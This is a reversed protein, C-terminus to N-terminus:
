HQVVVRRVDREGATHEIVVQYVGNPLDSVDITWGPATRKVERGIGDMIVFREVDSVDVGKLNVTVNAPVPFLTLEPEEVEAVGTNLGCPNEGLLAIVGPDDCLYRFAKAPGANYQWVVNDAEDVEYMYEGSIAVFTNGNPMRDSASQGSADALCEHRWEYNSPGWVTGPTWPYNYGDRVPNIADITTSGGTGGSNNVFQLWGANPRDALLWHVDHVAAAIRQTGSIGYNAPKGWRFVFDGGRGGNGGTHGAAEATTTSHDIIFVESLYRASFAIQDLEPNYDVGNEHFWDTGGGPGGGTSVTVNINLREPHDAIPMYNPKTADVYQILRDKIEWQWVIEGGTGNQQVEIIRSPYKVSSATYGLAQLEALTQKVYAILLVHGNPMLCLDHHTVYNATSYVFEWVISGDPALEQVKGGVAAGTIQNGANVAGRVINGNPRLALAYNAESPCSWTREIQADANIMYATSSNLSNYIAYGNFESQAAAHAVSISLFFLLANRLSTINM